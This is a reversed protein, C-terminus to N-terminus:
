KKELGEALGSVFAQYTFMIEHADDTILTEMLMDATFEKGEKNNSLVRAVADYMREIQENSKALIEEVDKEMDLKAIEKQYAEFADFYDAVYDMLVKTPRKVFVKEGDEMAIVMYDRKKRNLDLVTNM